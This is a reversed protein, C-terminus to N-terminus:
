WNSSLITTCFGIKLLEHATIKMALGPSFRFPHFSEHQSFFRSQKSLSSDSIQVEIRTSKVILLIHRIIRIAFALSQQLSKWCFSKWTTLRLLHHHRALKLGHALIWELKYMEIYTTNISFHKGLLSSVTKLASQVGTSAKMLLHTRWDANLLVMIRIGEREWKKRNPSVMEPMM